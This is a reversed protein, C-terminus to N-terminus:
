AAERKSVQGRLHPNRAVLHMIVTGRIDEPAAMAMIDLHQRDRFHACEIVRTEIWEAARADLDAQLADPRDWSPASGKKSGRGRKASLADGRRAAVIGLLKGATAELLKVGKSSCPISEFNTIPSGHPPRIEPLSLLDYGPLGTAASAEALAAHCKAKAAEYAASDVVDSPLSPSPSPPCTKQVHEPVQKRYKKHKAQAGAQARAQARERQSKAEAYVEAQTDNVIRDGDIRWFASVRPWCADWEAETVGCIRRITEHDNPLSGGKRWAQTLMERYLGRPGIPMEFGSSGQWRDTWFWEALMKDKSM